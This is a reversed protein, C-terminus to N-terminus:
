HKVKERVIFLDLSNKKVCDKKKIKDTLNKTIELNKKTTRTTNKKPEKQTNSEEEKKTNEVKVINLSTFKSNFRTIDFSNPYDNMLESRLKNAMTLRLYHKLVDWAQEIPAENHKNMFKMLLTCKMKLWNLTKTEDYYWVEMDGYRVSSCVTPLHQKIQENVKEFPTDIFYEDIKYLEDRGRSSVLPLILFVPHIRTIVFASGNSIVFNEYFFSSPYGRSAEMIEYFNDGSIIFPLNSNTRPHPLYVVKPDKIHKPWFIIRSAM